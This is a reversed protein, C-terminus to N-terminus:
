SIEYNHSLIHGIVHWANAVVPQSQYAFSIWLKYKNSSLYEHLTQEGEHMQHLM